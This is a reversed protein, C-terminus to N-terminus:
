QPEDSLLDDVELRVWLADIEVEVEVGRERKWGDGDAVLTRVPLTICTVTVAGFCRHDHTTRRKKNTVNWRKASINTHSEQVELVLTFVM